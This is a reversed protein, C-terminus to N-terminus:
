PNTLSPVRIRLLKIFDALKGFVQQLTFCESLHSFHEREVLCLRCACAEDGPSEEPSLPPPQLNRTRMSRHVWRFYNKSDRPTINPSAFRRWVEHMPVEMKLAKAWAQECSPKELVQLRFLATLKRITIHELTQGPAAGAYTWGAPHPFCRDARGVPGGDWLLADCLHHEPAPIVRGTRFLRGRGTCEVEELVPQGNREGEYGYVTVGPETELAKVKPGADKGKSPRCRRMGLGETSVQGCPIHPETIGDRLRGLGEGPEWGMKAM